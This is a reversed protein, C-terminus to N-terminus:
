NRQPNRFYRHKMFYYILGYLHSIAIRSFFKKHTLRQVHHVVTFDPYYITKGGNQWVRIGYDVDEPSYFINEDFFGIENLLKRRFFWCASIAYDVETMKKFLYDKYGDLDRLKLKFIIEPIKIFKGFISPFKKASEQITGDPFILKPALISITDDEKLTTLINRLNGELLVADSDLVCIVDGTCRKLAMNRPKTTGKNKPLCILSIPIKGANQKIIEITGDSSGNDVVFVEYSISEQTCKRWIGQLCEGINKKSNWTLVVFSIKEIM